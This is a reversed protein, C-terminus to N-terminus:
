WLRLIWDFALAEPGSAGPGLVPHNESLEENARTDAM